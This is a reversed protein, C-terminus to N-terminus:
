DRLGRGTLELFVAELTVKEPDGIQSKLEHPTDLAMIQGGDIIAVQDCLRDAEEM